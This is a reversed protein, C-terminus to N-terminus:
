AHHRVRRWASGAVATLGALLMAWEAPEPVPAVRLAGVLALSPFTDNASRQDLGIALYNLAAGGAIGFDSM